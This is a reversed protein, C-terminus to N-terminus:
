SIGRRAMEQRVMEAYVKRDPMSSASEKDLAGRVQSDTLGRLYGCFDDRDWQSPALNPDM